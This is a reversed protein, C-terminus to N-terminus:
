EKAGIYAYVDFHRTNTDFDYPVCDDDDYKVWLNDSVSTGHFGIAWVDDGSSEVYEAWAELHCVCPGPPFAAVFSRLDSAFQQFNERRVIAHDYTSALVARFPDPVTVADAVKWLDSQWKGLLWNDTPDNPYRRLYKKYMADWIRAAGGHSNKCELYETKKDNKFRIVKCHSM